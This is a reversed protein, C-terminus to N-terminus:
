TLTQMKFEWSPTKCLMCFICTTCCLRVTYSLGHNSGHSDRYHGIINCLVLVAYVLGHSHGHLDRYHGKIDSSVLVAHLYHVAHAVSHTRGNSVRYDGIIDCLVIVVHLSHWPTRYGMCQGTYIETEDGYNPDYKQM